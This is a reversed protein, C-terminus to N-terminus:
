PKRRKTLARWCTCHNLPCPPCIWAKSDLSGQGFPSRKTLKSRSTIAEAYAGPTLAGLGVPQVGVSVSSHPRTGTDFPYNRLWFILYSLGRQSYSPALCHYRGKKEVL